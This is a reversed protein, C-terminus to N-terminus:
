SLEKIQRFASLLFWLNSNDTANFVSEVDTMEFFVKVREAFVPDSLQQTLENVDDTGTLTALSERLAKLQRTVGKRYEFPICYKGYRIGDLFEKALKPTAYIKVPHEFAGPSFVHIQNAKLEVRWGLEEALKEVKKYKPADKM